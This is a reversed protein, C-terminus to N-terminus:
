RITIIEEFSMRRDSYRILVEDGSRYPIAEGKPSSWLHTSSIKKAPVRRTSDKLLHSTQRYLEKSWGLIMSDSGDPRCVTVSGDEAGGYVNVILRGSNTGTSAEVRGPCAAIVSRFDLSFWDAGAEPYFDAVFYGRPAGCNMMDSAPDDVWTLAYPAGVDLTEMGNWVDRIVRHTHANVLLVGEHGALMAALSDAGHCGSLPIHTALVTHGEFPRDLVSALWAKSSPTLGGVYDKGDREHGTRVNDMLIFRVGNFILVTDSYGVCQRWTDASRQGMLKGDRDHNGMVAFAPFPLSKLASAARTLVGSNEMSLDGMFLAMDIDSRSELDKFLTQKAREFAHDDPAQVDGVLAVRFSPGSRHAPAADDGTGLGRGSAVAEIRGTLYERLDSWHYYPWCDTQLGEFGTEQECFLAKVLVDGRGRRRFFVLQINTAMPSVYREDWTLPLSDLDHSVTCCRDLGMLAAVPVVQTDHGYRLDAAAGTGAVAADARSVFHRLMPVMDGLVRCHYEASPGYSTYTYTVRQRWMDMVDDETLYRYIDIGLDDHMWAASAVSWVGELLIQADEHSISSPSRFIRSVFAEPRASTVQAKQYKRTTKQVKKRRVDSYLEKMTADDCTISVGVHPFASKLEELACAMSARTRPVTSSIVDVSASKPSFVEPYTACMRQMIHRHEMEGRPVLEGEHGKADGCIVKMDAYLSEGEATLLGRSHADKLIGFPVTYQRAHSLYRSGHRGIHSIYFPKYGRPPRTM